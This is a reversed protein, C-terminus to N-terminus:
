ETTPAAAVVDVRQDSRAGGAEDFWAYYEQVLTLVLTLTGCSAPAKVIVWLRLEEGPVADRSLPTREGDYVLVTGDSAFWRYSVCVRQLGSSPWTEAGTNVVRMEVARVENAQLVTLEGLPEIAGRFDSLVPAHQALHQSGDWGAGAAVLEVSGNPSGNAPTCSLEPYLKATGEWHDGINGVVGLWVIQDRWHYVETEDSAVHHIAGGIAYDGYGLDCRFRFTFVYDGPERIELSRGQARCNTGFVIRGADDVIQIGVVVDRAPGHARIVLNVRVVEGCFVKNGRSVNGVVAASLLEVKRNGYDAPMSSAAPATPAAAVESAPARVHADSASVGASSALRSACQRLTQQRKARFSRLAHEYLAIDLVNLEELRARSKTDIAEVAARGQTVNVRPVESIPPWGVDCCLVHVFEDFEEFAGVLDYEGLAAKAATLKEEGSLSSSGDWKMPLFHMTQDNRLLAAVEPVDCAIYEDLTLRKALEVTPNGGRKPVQNRSFYYHSLLRDVPHRLVTLSYRTPDLRQGPVFSFHGTVVIKDANRALARNLPEILGFTVNQQGFRDVLVQDLSSGAAKYIHDFLFKGKM